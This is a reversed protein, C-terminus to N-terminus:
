LWMKFLCESEITITAFANISSSYMYLARVAHSSYCWVISLIDWWTMLSLRLPRRPKSYKILPARWSSRTSILTSSWTSRLCIRLSRRCMRDRAVLSSVISGAPLMSMRLWWVTPERMCRCFVHPVSVGAWEFYRITPLKRAPFIENKENKLLWSCINQVCFEMWIIAATLIGAM